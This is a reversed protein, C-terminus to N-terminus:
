TGDFPVVHRDIYNHFHVTVGAEDALVLAYQAPGDLRQMAGPMGDLHVSVGYSSGALTTFPLGHRFSSSAYHVHGAIVQRLDPHRKLVAIFADADELMLRDVDTGLPQAHHHMVVIVPRDSAEALRTDLWELRQACLVGEGRGPESSDLLIVRYGGADIVSQVFGRDDLHRAGFVQKFRERHDHNGLTLHYPIALTALMDALQRYARIDGHDVLDGALLCFDFDAHRHNVSRVAARLRETTDVGASTEGPPVLHLDSMVIFKLM